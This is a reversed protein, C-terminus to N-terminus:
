LGGKAHINETFKPLWEGTNSNVDPYQVMAGILDGGAIIEDLNSKELDAVVIKINFGEARPYLGAITQPFMKDSVLFVKKNSKQRSAPLCAYAFTMAETAATLEDLVSANAIELGTLETILTQFNILSELRGQSIEAQYPTYSTYWEPCELINRKIVEPVKTGYYGNGLLAPKASCEEMINKWEEAFETESLGYEFGLDMEGPYQIKKPVVSDIFTDMSDYGVIELMEKVHKPDPGIHRRPLTDLDDFALGATLPKQGKFALPEPQYPFSLTPFGKRLELKPTKVPAVAAGSLEGAGLEPQEVALAAETAFSRIAICRPAVYARASRFALQHRTPLLARRSAALLTTM